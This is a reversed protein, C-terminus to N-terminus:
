ASLRLPRAEVAGVPERALLARLDASAKDLDAQACVAAVYRDPRLFIFEATPTELIWDRFAGTVDDLVISGRHDLDGLPASRSKRVFVTTAGFARWFKAEEASLCRQPDKNIGIISFWNGIADDLKVIRRDSTEVMPQMFMRGVSKKQALGSKQVIGTTYRPMPKFRMQMIYDRAAPVYKVVSFVANRLLEALRSKPSYLVGFMRAMEVMKHAHDRREQEYTDLIKPDAGRSLVAALKWALNTADRLGSNMGQGFFPPQLHAADGALFVRDVRFRDAIRSHHLYIRARKIKGRRVDPPYCQALLRDLTEPKLVEEETQAAALRLEFRRYGYPLDITMWPSAIHTHVASYPSYLGDNELDVVLWRAPNTRGTLEVGVLRRVTSRGGDTGVLYDAEICTQAGDPGRFRATVCADTQVLSELDYGLMATVSPFRALGQRLTAEAMPQMFINRRSWGFPQGGPHVHAFCKGSATYYRAPVNRIMDGLLTDALGITQFSRLAEDDMGVARPYDLIETERDVIVTDIGYLGLHNAITVGCPGMGVILVGAKRHAATGDSGGDGAM